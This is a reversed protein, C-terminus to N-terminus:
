AAGQIAATRQLSVRHALDPNANRKDHRRMAWRIWPDERNMWLKINEYTDLKGDEREARFEMHHGFCLEFRVRNGQGTPFKVSYTSWRMCFPIDCLSGNSDDLRTIYVKRGDDEMVAAIVAGLSMFASAISPLLWVIVPWHALPLFSLCATTLLPFVLVSVRHFTSRAGPARDADAALGVLVITAVLFIQILGAILWHTWYVGLFPAILFSFANGIAALAVTYITAFRALEM